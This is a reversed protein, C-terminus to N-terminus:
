KISAQSFGLYPRKHILCGMMESMIDSLADEVRPNVKEAFRQYDSALDHLHDIKAEIWALHAELETEAKRCVRIAVGDRQVVGEFGGGKRLSVGPLRGRDETKSLFTNLKNPIFCCTDPGYLNGSGLLDKDLVDCGKTHQSDFWASFSSLSRWRDDVTVGVYRSARGKMTPGYCREIMNKWKVYAPDKWTIVQKGDIYVWKIVPHDVDVIGFNRVSKM